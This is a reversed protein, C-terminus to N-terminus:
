RIFRWRSASAPLCAGSLVTVSDGGSAGLGCRAGAELTTAMCVFVRRAAGAGEGSRGAPKRGEGPKGGQEQSEDALLVAERRMEPM